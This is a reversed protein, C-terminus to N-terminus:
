FIIKGESSSIPNTRGEGDTYSRENFPTRPRRARTPQALLGPLVLAAGCM